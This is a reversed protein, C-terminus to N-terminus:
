KKRSPAVAVVSRELRVETGELFDQNLRSLRAQLETAAESLVEEAANPGAFLQWVLHNAREVEALLEMTRGRWETERTTVLAFSEKRVSLNRFIPELKHFVTSVRMSLEHQHDSAMREVLLVSREPLTEIAEVAFWKALHELARAEQLAATLSELCSNRLALATSYAEDDGSDTLFHQELISRVPFDEADEQLLDKSGSPRRPHAEGSTVLEIRALPLDALAALLETRREEHAVVGTVVIGELRQSVEIKEALCARTRHLRYLAEIELSSRARPADAGTVARREGPRRNERNTFLPNSPAFEPFLESKVKDFSLVAFELETCQVATMETQNRLRFTRQVPHWDSERVWLEGEPVSQSGIPLKEAFTKLRIAKSGDHLWVSSVEDRSHRLSRRWEEFNGVSLPEEWNAGAKNFLSRFVQDTPSESREVYHKNILDRYITRTLTRSGQQIRVTQRLVPRDVQHVLSQESTTARRLLENASVNPTDHLRVFLLLSVTIPLTALAVSLPKIWGLIRQEFVRLWWLFHSQPHGGLEDIEASLQARLSRSPPRQCSVFTEQFQVVKSIVNGIEEVRVRCSWCAALHVKTKADDRRGLEGDIYRLLTEDSVHFATKNM